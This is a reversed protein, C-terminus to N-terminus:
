PSRPASARLPVNTKGLIVAGAARVSKALPGDQKARQAAFEPMGMTTRMGRVDIADKITIPLGLLPATNGATRLEDAKRASARAEDPNREVIVNLARNHRAIRAEHLRLLEVASTEGAKLSALHETASAFSM